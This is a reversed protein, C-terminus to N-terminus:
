IVALYIILALAVAAGMAIFTARNAKRSAALYAAHEKSPADLSGSKRLATVYAEFAKDARRVAPGTIIMAGVFVSLIFLSHLITM